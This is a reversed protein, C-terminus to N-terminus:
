ASVPVDNTLVASLGSRADLHLKRFVSTLHGEVTRATIFLMQAIERNTLDQSALEAIRRESATLSDLGTLVVRRPRAGTARLETEARAALQAAGARHAIDLAKRLLERAETRRNHRRLIAGLDALARARELRADADELAEIAERLMLEGHEGGAVIGAARQAVGIARPTGFARALELEDVALRRASDRDGLALGALAAESRWPLFSPSVVQARVLVAGVALFDDLGEALRGQEVRLRGRAFRLLTANLAPRQVESDVGALTEEAAALEGQDTLAEVLLATQFVRYIPPAPLETAALATRSDVEAARVDGRRLAVWGRHALGAALRGGDGSTRAEAISEDLLPRLQEYRELWLLALTTRSFRTTYSFWPRARPETSEAGGALLARTALEAGLDAPDNAAVSTFAAAALLEPTAGPDNVHELLNSRRLAVSPATAPDNMAPVVAAAQLRLAVDSDGPGLSAAVRDLLDVAEVFRQARSLADALVTAADAVAAPSSAEDVARELHETWGDLGASAEAMGLELLLSPQDNSPAPEALARRLFVAETEPAGQRGAESAAGLLREVAWRDGAPETALLHQAVRAGAGPQEALVRAARRHAQARDPGSLMEYVSRRVIPHVFELPLSSELIGAQVLRDAADTAEPAGLQALHAAQLLDGQELVALARALRIAPEPLRGLRLQISRGISRAGIREVERAAEAAPTIGGERLAGVLEGLLFPTGRTSRLCADVFGPDPADELASELLQAVAARSLPRLRVVDASPAAMLTALLEADLGLESPRTAALLTVSLEEVRTVLFALYRLSPADAWHTDDVIVCLPGAAALHACMWYLGHLIAFSPDADERQADTTAPGALGLLGAAVGAAGELLETRESESAEMLTPEFLQRVIGFPFERELETARSRLVRMGSEAAMTRAAALLSTKGIGAPGEVVVFTGSGSRAQDLASEIRALEDSRELLLGTVAAGRM